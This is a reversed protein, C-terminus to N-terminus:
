RGKEAGTGVGMARDTAGRAKIGKGAMAMLPSHLAGGSTLTSKGSAQLM